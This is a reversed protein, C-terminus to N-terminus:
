RRRRLLAFGMVGLGFAATAPEPIPTVDGNLIISANHALNWEPGHANDGIPDAAAGDSAWFYMKVQASSLDNLLSNMGFNWTLTQPVSPVTPGYTTRTYIQDGLDVGNIFLAVRDFLLNGNSGSFHDHLLTSFSGGGTGLDIEYGTNAAITFGVSNDNSIQNARDSATSHWNDVHFIDTKNGATLLGGIQLAQTLTLNSDLSGGAGASTGNWGATEDINNGSGPADFGFQIIGAHASSISLLAALSFSGILPLRFNDIM